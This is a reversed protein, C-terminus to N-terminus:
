TRKWVVLPHERERLPLEVRGGSAHAAFVALIMEHADRGSQLSVQPERDQEIAELLNDIAYANMAVSPDKSVLEPANPLPKWHIDGRGGMWSSSELWAVEPITEMRIKVIGKSGYLDLGWRGGNGHRNKMTGFFGPVGGTFGFAATIRDGVVRGLPESAEHVDAPTAPRGEVTIDSACWLPKGIFFLMLDFIHTGLVIVDEGGARHDEKGRGRMELVDGILDEEFILKKTLQIIPTMRKQHAVAWKLNKAEIAAAMEDAEKLTTSVPKEIYGHAGVEACALVYDRHHITWRPGVSVLDPKEKQLMERYDAYLKKAGAEAGHKKRGEEDPDALGVLEIDDRKSWALHLAHGYGGQKTDGIVCARYKKKEARGPKSGIVAAALAAAGATTMFDRRKTKM